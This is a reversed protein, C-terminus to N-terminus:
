LTLWARKAEERESWCECRADGIKDLDTPSRFYLQADQHSMILHRNLRQHRPRMDGENIHLVGNVGNAHLLL